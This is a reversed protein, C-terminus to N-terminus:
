RTRLPAGEVGSKELIGLVKELSSLIKYCVPPAKARVCSGRVARCFSGPCLFVVGKNGMQVLFPSPFGSGIFIEVRQEAMFFFFHRQLLPM